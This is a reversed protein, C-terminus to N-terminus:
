STLGHYLLVNNNEISFKLQKYIRIELDTESEQHQTRQM